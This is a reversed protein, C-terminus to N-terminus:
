KWNEKILQDISNFNENQNMSKYNDRMMVLAKKLLKKSNTNTVVDTLRKQSAAYAHNKRYETAISFNKRM